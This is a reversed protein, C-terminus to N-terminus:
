LLLIGEGHLRRPLSLAICGPANNHHADPHHTCWGQKATMPSNDQHCQRKHVMTTPTRRCMPGTGATEGGPTGRAGGGQQGERGRMMREQGEDEADEDRGGRAATNPTSPVMTTTTRTRNEERAMKSAQNETGTRTVEM